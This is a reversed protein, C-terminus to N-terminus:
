REVMRAVHRIRMVLGICIRRTFGNFFLRRAIALYELFEVGPFDVRFCCRALELRFRRPLLLGGSAILAPALSATRRLARARVSPSPVSVAIRRLPARAAGSRRPPRPSAHM